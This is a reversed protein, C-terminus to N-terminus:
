CDILSKRTVGPKQKLALSLAFGNIHFYKKNEHLYFKNECSLNQVLGRKYTSQLDNLTIFTEKNVISLSTFYIFYNMKSSRLIIM